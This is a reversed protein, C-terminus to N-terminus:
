DNKIYPVDEQTYIQTEKVPNGHEDTKHLLKEALKSYTNYQKIGEM